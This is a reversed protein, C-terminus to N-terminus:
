WLQADHHNARTINGTANGAPGGVLHLALKKKKIHCTCSCIVIFGFGEWQRACDSHSNSRCEKSCFEVLSNDMM